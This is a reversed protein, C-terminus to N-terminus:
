RCSVSACPDPSRSIPRLYRLTGSPRLCGSRPNDRCVTASGIADRGPGSPRLPQPPKAEMQRLTYLARQYGCAVDVRERMSPEGSASRARRRRPVMLRPAGVRNPQGEAPLLLGMGRPARCARMHPRDPRPAFALPWFRCWVSYKTGPWAWNWAANGQERSVMSGSWRRKQQLPTARDDALLIALAGVHAAQMTGNAKSRKGGV